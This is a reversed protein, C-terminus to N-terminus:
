PNRSVSEAKWVLARLSWERLRPCEEEEGMEKSIQSKSGAMEVGIDGNQPCRGWDGEGMVVNKVLM